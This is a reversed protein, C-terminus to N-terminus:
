EFQDVLKKAKRADGLTLTFQDGFNSQRSWLGVNDSMDPGKNGDILEAVKALPKLAELLEIMIKSM